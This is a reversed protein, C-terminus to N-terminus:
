RLCAVLFSLNGCDINREDVFFSRVKCESHCDDATWVICLAYLRFHAVKEYLAERDVGHGIIHTELGLLADDKSM